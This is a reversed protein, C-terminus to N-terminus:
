SKLRSFHVTRSDVSVNQNNNSATLVYVTAVADMFTVVIVEVWLKGNGDKRYFTTLGKFGLILIQIRM